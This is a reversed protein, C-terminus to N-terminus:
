NGTINLAGVYFNPDISFDEVQTDLHKRMWQKRPYLWVEEGSLFVKVPMNFSGNCNSWRYSLENDKLVYELVPIRVDRLYQDFFPSLDQDIAADMYSEIQKSTVTQHYFDRNLGRFIERWKEDDNVIQRLTHLVNGGKPYMDNSGKQNVDYVGVIPRDNQIGRRTGLVYEAGAQKGFHYEVFLSESYNTFSEHIWMDAIDRYTINNAFWEHGSEHVIIFDFRDGWGSQSLDRGLYGNQYGNGYTVSSQHEM